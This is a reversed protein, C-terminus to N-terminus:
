VNVGTAMVSDIKLLPLCSWDHGLGQYGFVLRSRKSFLCLIDKSDLSLTDSAGVVTLEKCKWWAVINLVTIQCQDFYFPM